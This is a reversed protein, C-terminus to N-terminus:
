KIGFLYNVGAQYSTLNGSFYVYNTIPSSPIYWVTIELKKNLQLGAKILLSFWTKEFLPFNDQSTTSQFSGGEKTLTQYHNYLSINFAVGANIFLKLREKNYVNFIVQPIISNNYQQFNLSTTAPITTSVNYNDTFQFQNVTFSYETRLILRQINKNRFLDFGASIKPFFSGAGSKGPFVTGSGDFRLNSYNVGIGAFWRTGVLKDSTFQSSQPGNIAEVVKILDPEAYTLQLIDDNVIKTNVNYKQALNELQIRYRKIYQVSASMDPNYFAHYILEQPQTEGAELLYFRPKIDDTFSYLTLHKGRTSIRLFVTDILTSTDPKSTLKNLDFSDQSISLTYREYYELGTIAFGLANKRTFREAEIANQSSKFNINEPNKEWERYDIFGQLTDDKLTVVYGPQYNSQAISFLPLFFLILFLKNFYKM